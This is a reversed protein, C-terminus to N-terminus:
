RAKMGRAELAAYAATMQPTTPSGAFLIEARHYEMNRDLFTRSVDASTADVDDYLLAVANQTGDSAGPAYPKYKGSATVIAMVTGSKLIGSGSAVVGQTRSQYGNAESVIWGAVNSPLAPFVYEAAM